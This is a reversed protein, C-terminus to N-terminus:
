RLWRTRLLGLVLVSVLLMVLALAIAADPDQELASYVGLPATQTRGPFSGAFTITAGFEGLARAWALASGAAIGPLVLPLAVTRFVRVPGAGLTAAVEDYRRDLARMSGEVSIVYFPMAVFVEALVVATTTFPITVGLAEELWGGIVGRRGWTLLLAVGGVVPPLVLPVTVLARAWATLPHDSRALLWALPTGLLWVVVMTVSTTVASLRLAQGVVPAALHEPLSPWDARLLLALLPLVLLAVGVGAPVLLPLRTRVAGRPRPGRSAAGSRAARTERQPATM